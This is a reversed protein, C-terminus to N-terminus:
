AFVEPQPAVKDGRLLRDTQTKMHELAAGGIFCITGEIVAGIGLMFNLTQIQMLHMNAVPETGYGTVSVDMKFAYFLLWAGFLNGLIGVGM